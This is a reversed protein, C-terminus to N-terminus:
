LAAVRELHEFLVRAQHRRSFRADDALRPPDEGRRHRQYWDSLRAAIADVEGSGVVAAATGELLRGTASDPEAMALIWASFQMYEFVKSPIALHSDQPLSVLVTAHALVDWLDRRSRQGEIEVYGDLGADQVLAAITTDAFTAVTGVLRIGFDRPELRHSRIVRAAAAFLPRPDRDLYITGAYTIVFRGDKRRKPVPEEDFGNMVTVIKSALAPYRHRMADRSAETNTVILQASPALRREHRRALLRWAACDIPDALREVLSWPDRMDMVFPLRLTRRLRHGALHVTHPPGCTVLATYPASQALREAVAAADM